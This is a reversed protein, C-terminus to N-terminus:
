REVDFVFSYISGNVIGYKSFIEIEEKTLKQRCDHFFTYRRCKSKTYELKVTTYPETTYLNFSSLVIQETFTGDGTSILNIKIREKAYIFFVYGNYTYKDFVIINYYENNNGNKITDHLIFIPLSDKDLAKSILSDGIKDTFTIGYNWEDILETNIELNQGNCNVCVSIIIAILAILKKM